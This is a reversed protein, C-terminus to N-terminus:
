AQLQKLKAIAGDLKGAVEDTVHNAEAALQSTLDAITKDKAHLAAVARDVDEVLEDVKASVDVAM